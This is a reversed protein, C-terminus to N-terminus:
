PDAERLRLIHRHRADCSGCPSSVGGAEVSADAAPDDAGDLDLAKSVGPAPDHQAALVGLVVVTLLCLAAAARWVRAHRAGGTGKMEVGPDM